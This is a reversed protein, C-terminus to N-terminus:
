MVKLWQVEIFKIDNIQRDKIFTFFKLILKIFFMLEFLPLRWEYYIQHDIKRM